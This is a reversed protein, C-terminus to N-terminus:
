TDKDKVDDYYKKFAKPMYVPLLFGFLNFGWFVLNALSLWRGGGKVVESKVWDFVAYMRVANYAVPVFVRIPLSFGGAFTVGEMVVQCALLFLHPAAPKVGETDGNLVGHVIYAVPLVLGVVAGVSVYATLLLLHAAFIPPPPTTSLTPYATKSLFITYFLSLPIFALHQIPVMSSIALTVAIAASTLHQFSLLTSSPPPSVGGSM